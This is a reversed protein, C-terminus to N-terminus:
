DTIIEDYHPAYPWQKFREVNEATGVLIVKRDWNTNRWIAVENKDLTEVDPIPSHCDMALAQLWQGGRPQYYFIDGILM